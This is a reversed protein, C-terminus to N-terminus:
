KHISIEYTSGTRNLRTEQCISLTYAYSNRSQFLLVNFFKSIVLTYWRSRSRGRQLKGAKDIRPRSTNITRARTEIRYLPTIDEILYNRQLEELSSNPAEILVFGDYREVVRKINPLREQEDGTVFVKLINNM